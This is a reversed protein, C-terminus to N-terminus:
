LSETDDDDQAIPVSEARQSAAADSSFLLFFLVFSKSRRSFNSWRRGSTHKHKAVWVRWPVPNM